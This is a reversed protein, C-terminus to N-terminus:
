PRIRNDKPLARFDIFFFCFYIFFDISHNLIFFSVYLTANFKYVHLLPTNSNQVAKKLCDLFKQEDEKYSERVDDRLSKNQLVLIKKNYNNDTDKKIAVDVQKKVIKDVNDDVNSEKKIIDTEEDNCLEQAKIVEKRRSFQITLM